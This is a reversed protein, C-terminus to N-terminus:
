GIKNANSLMIFQIMSNGETKKEIPFFWVGDVIYLSMKLIFSLIEQTCYFNSKDTYFYLEEIEKSPYKSFNANLFEPYEQIKNLDTYEQKNIFPLNWSWHWISSSKNYVGITQFKGSLVIKDDPKNYIELLPSNNNDEKIVFKYKNHEDLDLIKGVKSLRSNYYNEIETKIQKKSM